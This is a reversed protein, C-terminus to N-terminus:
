SAHEVSHSVIANILEEPSSGAQKILDNLRKLEDQEKLNQMEAKKMELETISKKLRNIREEIKKIQEGYDTKKRM